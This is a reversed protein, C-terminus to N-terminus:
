GGGSISGEKAIPLTFHFTVGRGSNPTMWLHGGHSEIITRSIALGMGLGDSKTSFFADFIQDSSEVPVGEGTDCVAVEIVEDAITSIAIRLTRQDRDTESMADLANRFLNVLVQQIQIEDMTAVHGSHDAQLEVRADAQRLDSQLLHMVEEIPTVVDVRSHATTTKGVLHRLRRIIEGARIAQQSLDEFLRQLRETDPSGTKAVIRKGTHCYNSIATLPQNVEHALGTAIEGLTSLRTVHALRERHERAENELKKRKTIESRLDRNTKELAATRQKVRIELEDHAKQLAEEARQRETIDTNIGVWRIIEGSADRVPMGVFDFSRYSGDKSMFRCEGSYSEGHAYAREWKALLGPADDPHIITAWGPGLAEEKPMGIIDEWAQNLYSCAGDSDALWIIQPVAELITKYLTESRQLAEQARKRQTAGNDVIFDTSKETM